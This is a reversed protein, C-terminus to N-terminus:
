ASTLTVTSWGSWTAGSPWAAVLGADRDANQDVDVEPHLSGANGGGLGGDFEGPQNRGGRAQAEVSQHAVLTM